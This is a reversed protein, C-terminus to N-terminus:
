HQGFMINYGVYINTLNEGGFGSNGTDIYSAGVYGYDLFTYEAGIYAIDLNAGGTVTVYGVYIEVDDMPRYSAEIEIATEDFVAPNSVLLKGGFQGYDAEILGYYGTEGVGGGADGGFTEFGASAIINANFQYQMAGTIVYVDDFDEPVHYSLGYKVDGYTGDFRVGYINSEELISILNIYSNGILGIEGFDFVKTRGIVPADIYDDLAAGPMGISFRGYSTDYYLIGSLSPDPGDGDIDVYYVNLEAGFPASGAQSGDYGFTLDVTSISASDDANLLYGYEANGEIYFGVPMSQATAAGALVTGLAVMGM